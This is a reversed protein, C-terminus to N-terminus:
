KTEVNVIYVDGTYNDFLYYEDLFSEGVETCCLENGAKDFLVGQTWCSEKDPETTTVVQIAVRHGNDFVVEEDFIASDKPVNHKPLPPKKCFQEMQDAEWKEVFLTKNKIM